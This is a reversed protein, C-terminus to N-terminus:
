KDFQSARELFAFVAAVARWTDEPICSGIDAEVLVQALASDEVVRIGNEEAIALMREALEGKGSALGVPALDGKEYGLAVAARRGKM